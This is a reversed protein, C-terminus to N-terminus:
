CQHFVWMLEHLLVPICTQLRDAAKKFESKGNCQKLDAVNFKLLLSKLVDMYERCLQTNLFDEVLEKCDEGSDENLKGSERCEKLYAWKNSLREVMFTAFYGFLPVLISDYKDSPCSYIFPRLFTKVMVRLRYDPISDLGHFVSAAFSPAFNPFDYFSAGFQQCASTLIAFCSEYLGVLFTQMRGLDSASTALEFVNEQKRQVHVGFLTKMEAESLDHVKEYGAPLKSRAESTWLSHITKILLFVGPLAPLVHPTCPNRYVPQEDFGVSALFGGKLATEKSEPWASRRILAKMLEVTYSLEARNKSCIEAAGADTNLGILTAFKTWDNFVQGSIKMWYDRIEDFVEKIFRSQREYDGFGNNILLMAEIYWVTEMKSLPKANRRLDSYANRIHDFFPLFLQPYKQSQKVLLCASHRHLMQIEKVHSFKLEDPVEFVQCAFVLELFRPVYVSKVDQPAGNVFYMLPSICSLLRSLIKPDVVKLSFCLDLLRLSREVSIDHTKPLNSITTDLLVSVADWELCDESIPKCFANPNLSSKQARTLLWQEVCGFTVAPAATTLHRFGELLEVRFRYYFTNFAEESDFDFIMYKYCEQFVPIADELHYPVCVVKPAVDSVWKAFCSTVNANKNLVNHKFLLNWCSNVHYAVPFSPHSCLNILIELFLRFNEPSVMDHVNDNENKIVTCLLSCLSALLEAVKKVFSYNRENLTGNQLTVNLQSVSPILASNLLLKCITRKDEHKGKKTAIRNLCEGTEFQYNENALLNCLVPLLRQEEAVLRNVFAFEVIESLLRLCLNIIRVSEPVNSLKYHQAMLNLLFTFIAEMQLMLHQYLDKRRQAYELTQLVVVDEIFRLFTLLVIEAQIHGKSAIEYLEPLLNPWHQPWERKMMEVVVRSLADRLHIHRSIDGECSQLLSMTVDKISIKQAQDIHYWKYKVCYEMLQLGFHRVLDSGNLSLYVSCQICFPSKEKFEECANYAEHRKDQPMEPNLAAEVAQALQHSLTVVEANADM